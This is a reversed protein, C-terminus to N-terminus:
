EQMWDIFNGNFRSVMQIQKSISVDDKARYDGQRSHYLRQVARVNLLPKRETRM